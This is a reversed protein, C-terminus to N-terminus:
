PIQRGSPAAATREGNCCCLSRWVPNMNRGAGRIADNILVQFVLLSSELGADNGGGTGAAPIKEAAIAGGSFRTTEFPSLPVAPSWGGRGVATKTRKEARKESPHPSRWNLVWTPNQPIEIVQHAPDDRRTRFHSHTASPVPNPIRQGRTLRFLPLHAQCDISAQLLAHRNKRERGCRRRMSSRMRWQGLIL